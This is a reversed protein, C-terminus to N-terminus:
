TEEVIVARFERQPIREAARAESRATLAVGLAPDARGTLNGNACAALALCAAGSAPLHAIRTPQGIRKYVTVASFGLKGWTGMVVSASSAPRFATRCSTHLFKRM